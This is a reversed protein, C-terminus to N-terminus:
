GERERLIFLLIKFFFQIIEGMQFYGWDMDWVTNCIYDSVSNKVKDDLYYIWMGKGRGKVM